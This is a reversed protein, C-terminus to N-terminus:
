RRQGTRERHCNLQKDPSCEPRDADFQEVRWDTFPGLIARFRKTTDDYDQRPRNEENSADSDQDM